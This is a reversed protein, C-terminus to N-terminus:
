FGPDVNELGGGNMDAATLLFFAGHSTTIDPVAVRGAYAPDWLAKWSTPEEKIQDTNYVLAQSVYMFKTYPDGEIRFQPYLKEINPIKAPDLPHYLGEANAQAAGIEDMMMVDVQVDDKQARMLAVNQLTLGTAIKVKIDPNAAEFPEIVAKRWGEEFSGGYVIVTLETRASASGGAAGPLRSM